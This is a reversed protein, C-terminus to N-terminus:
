LDFHPADEEEASASDSAFFASAFAATEGSVYLSSSARAFRAAGSEGSEGGGGTAAAVISTGITM